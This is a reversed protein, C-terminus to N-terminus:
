LLNSAVCHAWVSPCGAGNLGAHEHRCQSRCQHRCGIRMSACGGGGGFETSAADKVQMVFSCTLNCGGVGGRSTDFQGGPEACAPAKSSERRLIAYGAGADPLVPEDMWICQWRRCGICTGACCGNAFAFACSFLGPCGPARGMAQQQPTQPTAHPSSITCYCMIKNSILVSCHWSRRSLDVLQTFLFHSLPPPPTAPPSEEDEM